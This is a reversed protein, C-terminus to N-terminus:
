LGLWNMVDDALPALVYLFIFGFLVAIVLLPWVLMTGVLKKWGIWYCSKHIHWGKIMCTVEYTALGAAIYTAIYNLM